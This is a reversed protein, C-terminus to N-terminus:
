FLLSPQGDSTEMMTLLIFVQGILTVFYENFSDWDIASFDTFVKDSNKLFVTNCFNLKFEVTYAVEVHPTRM